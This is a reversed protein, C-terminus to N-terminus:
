HHIVLVLLHRQADASYVACRAIPGRELSFPQRIARLTREQADAVGAHHEFPVNGSADVVVAPRGDGTVVYRTRLVEHRAVLRMLSKRLADVDIEGAIRLVVPMNYLASDARLQCLFWLQEQAFSLPM